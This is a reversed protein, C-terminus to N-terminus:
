PSYRETAVLTVGAALMAADIAQLQEATFGAAHLADIFTALTGSHTGGDESLPTKGSPFPTLELGEDGM